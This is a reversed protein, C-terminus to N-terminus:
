PMELQDCYDWAGRVLTWAGIAAVKSRDTTLPIPGPTGRRCQGTLHHEQKEISSNHKTMAPGAIPDALVRVDHWKCDVCTQLTGPTSHIPNSM